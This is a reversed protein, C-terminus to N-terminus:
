SVDPRFNVDFFSEVIPRRKKIRRKIQRFQEHNDFDPRVFVQAGCMPYFRPPLGDGSIESFSLQDKDSLFFLAQQMKRLSDHADLELNNNLNVWVSKVESLTLPEFYPIWDSEMVKHADVMNTMDDKIIAFVTQNKERMKTLLKDRFKLALSSTLRMGSEHNGFHFASFMDTEEQVAQALTAYKRPNLGVCFTILKGQAVTCNPM